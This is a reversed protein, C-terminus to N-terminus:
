KSPAHSNREVMDAMISDASTAEVNGAFDAQKQHLINQYFNIVAAQSSNPNKIFEDQLLWLNNGVYDVFSIEKEPNGNPDFLTVKADHNALINMLGINRERMYALTAKTGMNTDSSLGNTQYHASDPVMDNLAPATTTSLANEARKNSAELVTSSYVIHTQETSFRQDLDQMLARVDSRANKDIIAIGSKVGRNNFAGRVPKRGRESFLDEIMHRDSDEQHNIRTKHLDIVRISQAGGENDLKIMPFASTAKGALTHDDVPIYGCIASFILDEMAIESIGSAFTQVRKDTNASM